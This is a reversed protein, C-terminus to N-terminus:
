ARGHSGGPQSLSCAHPVALAIGFRITLRRHLRRDGRRNRSPPRLPQPVHRRREFASRERSFFDCRYDDEGPLSQHRSKATQNTMSRRATITSMKRWQCSPCPSAHTAVHAFRDDASSARALLCRSSHGAMLSGARFSHPSDFPRGPRLERNTDLALSPHGAM